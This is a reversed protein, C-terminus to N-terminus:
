AFNKVENRGHLQRSVFPTHSGTGRRQAVQSVDNSKTTADAFLSSRPHPQALSREMKELQDQILKAVSPTEILWNGLEEIEKAPYKDPIAFLPKRTSLADLIIEIPVMPASIPMGQYSLGTYHMRALRRDTALAPLKALFDGITTTGEAAYPVQVIEFIKHSPHMLLVLCKATTKDEKMELRELKRVITESMAHLYRSRARFGTDLSFELALQYSSSSSVDSIDSSYTRNYQAVENVPPKSTQKSNVHNELHNIHNLNDPAPSTEHDIEAYESLIEHVIRSSRTMRTANGVLQDYKISPRSSVSSPSRALEYYIKETPLHAAINSETETADHYLMMPDDEDKSSTDDLQSYLLSANVLPSSEEDSMTRTRTLETTPINKKLREVLRQLLKSTKTKTKEALSKCAKRNWGLRRRLGGAAKKEVTVTEPPKTTTDAPKEADDDDLIMWAKNRQWIKSNPKEVRSYEHISASLQSTDAVSSEWLQCEDESGLITSSDCKERRRSLSLPSRSTNSATTTCTTDRVLPTAYDLLIEEDTARSQHIILYM